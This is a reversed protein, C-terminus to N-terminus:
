KIESVDKIIKNVCTIITRKGDYDECIVILMNNGASVIEIRKTNIDFVLEDPGGINITSSKLDIFGGWNELIKQAEPNINIKANVAEPSQSKSLGTEYQVGNKILIKSVDNILEQRTFTFGDDSYIDGLHKGKLYVGFQECPCRAQSKVKGLKLGDINFYNLYGNLDKIREAHRMESEQRELQMKQEQLKQIQLEIKQQETLQEGKEQAFAPAASLLMLGATITFVTKKLRSAITKKNTEVSSLEKNEVSQLEKKLDEFNNEPKTDINEKPSINETSNGIGTEFKNM